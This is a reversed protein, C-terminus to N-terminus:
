VMNYKGLNNHYFINMNQSVSILYKGWGNSGSEINHTSPLLATMPLGSRSFAAAAAAAQLTSSHLAALATWPYSQLISRHQAVPSTETASDTRYIPEMFTSQPLTLFGANLPFGGYPVGTNKNSFSTACSLNTTNLGCLAYHGDSTTAPLEAKSELDLLSNISFSAKISPTSLKTASPASSGMKMVM